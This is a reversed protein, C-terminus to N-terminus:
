NFSLERYGESYETQEQHHQTALWLGVIRKVRNYSLGYGQSTMNTIFEICEDMDAPDLSIGGFEDQLIGLVIDHMQDSDKEVSQGPDMIAWGQPRTYNPLTSTSEWVSSRKSLPRKAELSM